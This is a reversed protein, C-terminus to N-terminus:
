LLVLQTVFICNKGMLYVSFFLFLLGPCTYTLQNYNRKTCQFATLEIEKQSVYRPQSNTRWSTVYLLCGLPTEMKRERERERQRKGKRWEEQESGKERELCIRLHPMFFFVAVADQIILTRPFPSKMKPAHLQFLDNPLCNPTIM